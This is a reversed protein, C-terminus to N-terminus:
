SVCASTNLSSADSWRSCVKSRNMLCILVCTHKHACQFLCTGFHTNMTWQLTKTPKFNKLTFFNHPHPPKTCFMPHLGHFLVFPGRLKNQNKEQARDYGRDLVYSVVEEPMSTLEGTEGSPWGTGVVAQSVICLRDAKRATAGSLAKSIQLLGCKPNGCKSFLYISLGILHSNLCCIIKKTYTHRLHQM